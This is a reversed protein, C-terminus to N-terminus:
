QQLVAGTGLGPNFHLIDDCRQLLAQRHAPDGKVMTIANQLWNRKVHYWCLFIEM